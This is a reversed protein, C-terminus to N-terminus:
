SKVNLIDTFNAPVGAIDLMPTGSSSDVSDVVGTVTTYNLVSNGNPDSASVSVTYQGGDPLQAGSSTQGNWTFSNMGAAVSGTGAWVTNGTQDQVSISVNQAASNLSYGFTAQGNQLTATSGKAEVTHGLYGLGNSALMGNFSTVLNGLQTNLQSQQDFTAYSALQNVFSSTDTPNIPDQNQLENVLLNLFDGSTLSNTATSTAITSNLAAANAASAQATVQAVTM